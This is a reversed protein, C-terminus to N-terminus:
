VYSSNWSLSQRLQLIIDYVVHETYVSISLLSLICPMGIIEDHHSIHEKASMLNEINWQGKHMREVRWVAVNEVLESRWMSEIVLKNNESWNVEAPESKGLFMWWFGTDHLLMESDSHLIILVTM